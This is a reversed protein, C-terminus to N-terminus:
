RNLSQRQVIGCSQRIVLKVPIRVERNSTTKVPENLKELIMRAATKGMEEAAQDVTTLPVEMHIGTNLNGYGALAIEDPVSIKLERLAKYAGIAVDDNCAFIASVKMPNNLFFKKTEYYGDDTHWNTYKVFEANFEINYAKLADIYGQLREKASSDGNPGSLHLINKHGIEILHRTILFGGKRDDSIIINANVESVAVDVIILPIKENLERIIDVNLQSHVGAVLIVGKGGIEFVRNLRKREEFADENVSCLVIEFSNRRLVNEIGSVIQFYFSNKLNPVIIAILSTDSNKHLKDQSTKEAVFTGRGQIRCLIGENVLEIIAQRVTMRSVGFESALSEESPIKEGIRYESKEIKELIVNKAQQSLTIPGNFKIM